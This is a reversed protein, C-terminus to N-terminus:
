MGYSTVRQVAVKDYDVVANSYQVESEFRKNAANITAAKQQELIKKVPPVKEEEVKRETTKLGLTKRSDKNKEIAEDKKDWTDKYEKVLEKIKRSTEFDAYQFIEKMDARFKDDTEYDLLCGYFLNKDVGPNEEALRNIDDTKDSSINTKFTRNGIKCEKMNTNNYSTNITVENPSENYIRKLMDVPLLCTNASLEDGKYNIVVHKKISNLVENLDINPINKIMEKPVTNIDIDLDKLYETSSVQLLKDLDKIAQYQNRGKKMMLKIIHDKCSYNDVVTFTEKYRPMMACVVIIGLLLCLLIYIYINAKAVKAM